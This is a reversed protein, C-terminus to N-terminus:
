ENNIFVKQTHVGPFYTVKAFYFSYQKDFPSQKRKEKSYHNISFM